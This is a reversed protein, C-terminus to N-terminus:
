RHDALARDTLWVLAALAVVGVSSLSVTAAVAQFWGVGATQGRWHKAIEYVNLAVWACALLLALSAIPQRRLRPRLWRVTRDYPSSQM